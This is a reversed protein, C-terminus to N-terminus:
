KQNTEVEQHNKIIMKNIHKEYSKIEELSLETKARVVVTHLKRKIKIPESVMKGYYELDKRKVVKDKSIIYLKTQAKNLVCCYLHDQDPTIYIGIDNVSYFKEM